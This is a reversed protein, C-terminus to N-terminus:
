NFAVQLETLKEACPILLLHVPENVSALFASQSLLLKSAEIM